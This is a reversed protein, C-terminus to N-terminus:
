NRPAAFVGGARYAENRANWNGIIGATPDNGNRAFSGVAGGSIDQEQGLSGSLPGSFRNIDSSQLEGPIEMTGSMNLPGYRGSSDFNTIDMTGSRKAFDWGMGVQGGAVYTKWSGDEFSAVNGITNGSYTASGELPLEGVTPLDGAVWWGVANDLYRPQSSGNNFEVESAWVGWSKLFECDNACLAETSIGILASTANTNQYFVQNNQNDQQLVQTGTASEIAAYSQDSTYQSRESSGGFGFIYADTANDGNQIDRVTIGASLTDNTPDFAFTVDQPSTSAVINVFGEDPKDSQVLATSYGSYPGLLTQGPTTPPETTPLETTPPETTPPETTPPETTPPETNQALERLITSTIQTINADSIMQDINNADALQSAGQSNGASQENGRSSSFNGNSTLAAGILNIDAATTERVRGISTDITYGPEYATLVQGNRLRLEAYDGFIFSIIGKGPGFAAQVIGGRIALSGAPTNVKVGNDNKSLKGGVFRMAGKSFTAVLEGSKKNPDYVFKDIVLNSNPGVTFTSGDVLLVQVLGSATTNIRENYFISKGINLQKNPSGSLSSFADPEVAAAVGVQEAAAPFSAGCSHRALGSNTQPCGPDPIRMLGM